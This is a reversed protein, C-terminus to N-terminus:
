YGVTDQAVKKAAERVQRDAEQYDERERQVQQEARPVRDPVPKVGRVARVSPGVYVICYIFRDSVMSIATYLDTDM